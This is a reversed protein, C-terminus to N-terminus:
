QELSTNTLRKDNAICNHTPNIASQNEEVADAYQSRDIERGGKRSTCQDKVPCTKCATHPIKPVIVVKKQGVQNEQAL